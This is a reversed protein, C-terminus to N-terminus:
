FTLSFQLELTDNSIAQNLNMIKIQQRTKTLSSIEM